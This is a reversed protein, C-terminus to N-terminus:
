TLTPAHMYLRNTHMPSIPGHTSYKEVRTSEDYRTDVGAPTNICKYQHAYFRICGHTSYKVAHHSEVCRIKEDLPYANQFHSTKRTYV